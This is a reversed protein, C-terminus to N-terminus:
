GDHEDEFDDDRIEGALGDGFRQALMKDIEGEGIDFETEDLFAILREIQDMAENRAQTLTAIADRVEQPLGSLVFAPLREFLEPSPTYQNM